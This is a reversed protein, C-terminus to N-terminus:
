PMGILSALVYIVTLGFALTVFLMAIFKPGSSHSDFERMRKYDADEERAHWDITEASM